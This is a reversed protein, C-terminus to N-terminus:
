RARVNTEVRESRLPNELACGHSPWSLTKSSTMSPVGLWAWPAAAPETSHCAAASLIRFSPMLSGFWSARFKGGPRGRSRGDAGTGNSCMHDIPGGRRYALSFCNLPRAFHCVLSAGRLPRVCSPAPAVQRILDADANSESWSRKIGAKGNKQAQNVQAPTMQRAHAATAMESRRM